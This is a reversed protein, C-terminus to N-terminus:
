KPDSTSPKTPEDVEFVIKQKVTEVFVEAKDCVDKFVEYKEKFNELAKPYSSTSSADDKEAELVEKGVDDKATKSEIEKEELAIRGAEVYENYANELSDAVKDM